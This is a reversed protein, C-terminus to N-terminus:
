SHKEGQDPKPKEAEPTKEAEIFDKQTLNLLKADSAKLQLLTKMDSREVTVLNKIEAGFGLALTETEKGDKDSYLHISFNKKGQLKTEKTLHDQLKTDQLQTLFREVKATDIKIKADHPLTWGQETKKLELPPEGSSITIRKVLFRDFSALKMNRYESAPRDINNLIGVPVEYIPKKDAIKAYAKGGKKAVWLSPRNKDNSLTLSVKVLPADLGYKALEQSGDEAPFNEARTDILATLTKNWEHTDLPINERANLWNDKDVRKMVYNGLRSSTVEVESIDYRSYRFIAKSRLARVDKDFTGRVSRSLLYVTNSAHSKAYLNFGTPTDNGLDIGQSPSNADKRVSVIFEPTKLGYVSLDNPADDVVRDYKTSCLTTLITSVVGSDAETNIPQSIQWQDGSRKLVIGDTQGGDKARKIVIEHITDKDLQVLQKSKDEHDSQIKKLRKEYGFYWAM